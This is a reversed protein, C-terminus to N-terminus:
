QSKLGYFNSIKVTSKKDAEECWEEFSVRHKMREEHKKRSIEERHECFVTYSFLIIVTLMLVGFLTLRFIM